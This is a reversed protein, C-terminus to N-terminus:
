CYLKIIFENCHLVDFVELADETLLIEDRRKHQGVKQRTCMWETGLTQLSSDRVIIGVDNARFIQFWIWHRLDPCIRCGSPRRFSQNSLMFIVILIILQVADLWEGFMKLTSQLLLFLLSLFKQLQDILNVAILYLSYSSYLLSHM